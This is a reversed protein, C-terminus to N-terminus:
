SGASDPAFGQGRLRVRVGGQVPGTPPTVSDLTVAPGADYPAPTYTPGADHPTSPTPNLRVITGADYETPVPQEPCSTIFALTILGLSTTTFISMRSILPKKKM